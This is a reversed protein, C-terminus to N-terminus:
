AAAADSGCSQDQQMRHGGVSGARWWHDLILIGAIVADPYYAPLRRVLAITNEDTRVIAPKQRPLDVDNDPSTDLGSSCV